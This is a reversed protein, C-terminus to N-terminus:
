VGNRKKKKLKFVSTTLMLFNIMIQRYKNGFSSMLSNFFKIQTVKLMSLLTYSNSITVRESM